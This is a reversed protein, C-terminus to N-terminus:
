TRHRSTAIFCGASHVADLARALEVGIRAVEVPGFVTGALLLEELTRGPVLEMWLGVYGGIQDAGHITVVNPHRVRALLRGEAIVSSAVGESEQRVPVLKLAVERDLRSDWARYVAGFAGQGILEFVRLHGWSEIDSLGPRMTRSGTESASSNRHAEAVAAVVRLHRALRGARDGTSEAAVWDITGGDLVAQALDDIPRDDPLM